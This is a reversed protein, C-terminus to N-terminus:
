VLNREFNEFITSFIGISEKVRGFHAGVIGDRSSLNFIPKRSTQSLPILSHLNQIEGLSLNESQVNIGMDGTFNNKITKDIKKLIDDYARVARRKGDKDTKAIYQQVVYGSFILDSPLSVPLDDEDFDTKQIIDEWKKLWDAFWAAINEIAKLSFIDTSMPSIFYDSALLVARNISGLSPGVDFFVFDYDEKYRQILEHFLISTRIGRIDGSIASSWDRALLDETLALRPDGAIVDFGFNPSYHIKTDKSFGKGKALPSVTSYLTHTKTENYLHNIHKEDFMYQTANCQPDADVLLIRQSKQQAAFAALNCILTTKGVGGKNNFFAVSKM